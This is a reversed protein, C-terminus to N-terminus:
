QANCPTLPMIRDRLEEAILRHRLANTHSDKPSVWVASAPLNRKQLHAVVREQVDVIVYGETAMQDALEQVVAPRADSTHGTLRARYDDWNFLLVAKIGRARALKALHRFANTMNEWGALPRWREPVKGPTFVYRGSPDADATALGWPPLVRGRLISIRRKLMELLYSRHLDWPDPRTALFNPLDMDNHVYNIVVMDPDYETAKTAFREVEMVTNYGPVGLNWVEFRCSSTVANLLRELVAPYPEDQAVGWGFTHSDGLVLIRFTGPDKAARRERDRMGLSNVSFSKGQFRGEIGPILEYVLLDDTSVRIIDGLTLEAGPPPHQRSALLEIRNDEQSVVIRIVGELVFFISTLSGFLLIM